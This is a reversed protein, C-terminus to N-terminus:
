HVGNILVRLGGAGPAVVASYGEPEGAAPTAGGSRSIRAGVRVQAFSSMKADAIISMSDDLVFQIPLDRVQKRLVALPFQPGQVAKVFIFVTDTDAVQGRLAPDLVVQGSLTPAPPSSTQGLPATGAPKLDADLLAKAESISSATSRAEDSDAVQVALTREWWAIAARYDHREFAASGALALAKSHRPNLALAQMVLQEPKGALKRGQVMALTDAYDALLDADPQALKLVHAYADASETFREMANYSRALMAWGDLDNPERQLRQALGQVMSNIQEDSVAHGAETQAPALPALGAPTGVTAYVAIALLPVALGLLWALRTQRAPAALPTEPQVDALVRRELEANAQAYSAADIAARALDQDLERKQDRLVALNLAAHNAQHNVGGNQRLLPLLVFVLALATLAVAACIFVMM